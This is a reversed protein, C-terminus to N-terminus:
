AGGGMSRPWLRMRKECSASESKFFYDVLRFIYFALSLSGLVPSIESPLTKLIESSPIIQSSRQVSLSLTFIM